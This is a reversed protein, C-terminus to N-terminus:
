KGKLQGNKEIITHSMSRLTNISSSHIQDKEGSAVEEVKGWSSSGLKLGERKPRRQMSDLIIYIWAAVQHILLITRPCTSGESCGIDTVFSPLLPWAEIVELLYFPHLHIPCCCKNFLATRVVEDALSQLLDMFFCARYPVPTLM